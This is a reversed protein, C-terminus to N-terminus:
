PMAKPTMLMQSDAALTFDGILNLGPTIPQFGLTVVIKLIPDENTNESHTIIITSRQLDSIGAFGDRVEQCISGYVAPIADACNYATGSTYPAYEQVVAYRTGERAANNLVAYYLVARGIDFLAMILLLFIPLILVFEVLTQGTHRLKNKM